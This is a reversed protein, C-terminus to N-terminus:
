RSGNKLFEVLIKGPRPYALGLASADAGCGVGIWGWSHGALDWM